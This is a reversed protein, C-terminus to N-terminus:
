KGLLNSFFLGNKLVCESSWRSGLMNSVIKWLRGYDNVRAFYLIKDIFSNDLLNLTIKSYMFKNSYMIINM